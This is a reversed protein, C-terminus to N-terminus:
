KKKKRLTIHLLNRKFLDNETIIFIEYDKFCHTVQTNNEKIIIEVENNTQIINQEKVDKFEIRKLEEIECNIGENKIEKIILLTERM